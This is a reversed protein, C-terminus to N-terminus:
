RLLLSEIRGSYVPTSFLEVCTTRHSAPIAITSVGTSFLDPLAAAWTKPIPLGLLRLHVFLWPSDMRLAGSGVHVRDPRTGLLGTAM